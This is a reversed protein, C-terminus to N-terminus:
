LELPTGYLHNPIGPPPSQSHAIASNSFPRDKPAKVAREKLHLVGRDATGAL